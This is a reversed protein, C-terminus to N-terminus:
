LAKTYTTTPPNVLEWLMGTGDNPIDKSATHGSISNDSSQNIPDM